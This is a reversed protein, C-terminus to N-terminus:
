IESSMQEHNTRTAAMQGDVWQRWRREYRQVRLAVADRSHGVSLAQEGLRLRRLRHNERAQPAPGTAGADTFWLGLWDFGDRIRGCQTKEPHCEFGAKTWFNWCAGEHGGCRGAGTQYFWFTMWIGYM